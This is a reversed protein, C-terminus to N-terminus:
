KAGTLAKVCLGRYRDMAKPTSSIPNIEIAKLAKLDKAACAKGIEEMIPLFRAHTPASFDPKPPINGALAKEEAAKWDYRAREGAAVPTRAKATASKKSAAKAQRKAGSKPQAKGKKAATAKKATKTAMTEIEPTAAPMAAKRTAEKHEALRALSAAKKRNAEADLEKRLKKTAPDEDKKPENFHMSCTPRTRKGQWAENREAQTKLAIEPPLGDEIMMAQAGTVTRNHFDSFKRALDSLSTNPM